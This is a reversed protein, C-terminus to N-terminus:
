IMLFQGVLGARPKEAVFVKKSERKLSTFCLILMMYVPDQKSQTTLQQSIKLRVRKIPSTLYFSHIPLVEVLIIIIWSPNVIPISSPGKKRGNM